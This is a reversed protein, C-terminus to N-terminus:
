HYPSWRSRCEKGVRREESREDAGRAVAARLAATAPALADYITKDGIRCHGRRALGAAAAELLAALQAIRPTQEDLGRAAFGAEMFASGYLPGSAGGVSAILIAGASRLLSSLDDEGAGDADLWDEVASFGALLNDGHDGDGLAEDLRTLARAHRGVIRVCRRLYARAEAAGLPPSELLVATPDAAAAHSGTALSAHGMPLPPYGHRVTRSLPGPPGLEPDLGCPDSMSDQHNMGLIPGTTPRTNTDCLAASSSAKRCIISSLM